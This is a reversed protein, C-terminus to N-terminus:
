TAIDNKTFVMYINVNHWISFIRFKWKQRKLFLIIGIVHKYAKSWDLLLSQVSLIPYRKM